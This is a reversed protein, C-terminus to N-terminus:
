QNGLLNPNNSEDITIDKTPNIPTLAPNSPDAAFYSKGTYNLEPSIVDVSEVRTVREKTKGFVLNSVFFSVIASVGVLLILIPLDKGKIM